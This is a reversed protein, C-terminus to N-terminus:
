DGKVVLKGVSFPNKNPFFSKWVIERIDLSKAHSPLGSAICLLYNHFGLFAFSERPSFIFICSGSELNIREANVNRHKLSNQRFPVSSNM